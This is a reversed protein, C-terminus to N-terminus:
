IINTSEHENKSSKLQNLKSKLKQMLQLRLQLNNIAAEITQDNPGIENLEKNLVEYEINLEDLRSLFGDVVEKNEESVKLKSLEYNINAVYYNEVKKLEPSLDGLSISKKLDDKTHEVVTTKIVDKNHSEKLLLYSGISLVIVVSAAIKLWLYSNTRKASPLEEELLSLFRNEHGDKMKFKENERQEKFLERLDQAM